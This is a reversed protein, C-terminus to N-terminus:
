AIFKAKFWRLAISFIFLFNLFLITLSTQVSQARVSLATTNFSTKRQKELVYALNTM